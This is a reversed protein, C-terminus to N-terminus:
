ESMIKSRLKDWYSLRKSIEREFGRENPYYLRVRQMEDPFCNQGSFADASDHDYSYNKGYSLEKMLSTPANLLSKPPSLSGTIKATDMAKKWAIYVSNSKPSTALFIVLEAIHLEGEPNGIREYSQWASIAIGVAQPDSLGIDEAAFRVLRRLLYHPDEGALLMRALWYLSADCDSARLSKHLASILNFHHDGQKDYQLSRKSLFEAVKDCTWNQETKHAVLLQTMNLLYRADGDSLEVLLAQTAEDLHIPEELFVMARQYIAKLASADLARLVVVQTRSLLASNLAFSPNETTAGILRISGDEIAPLLADQQAKNFRHIEDIFVLISTDNQTVSQAREYIKRIESVGDLVASLKVFEQSSQTGLIRAITTKGSGPPGWFIFSGSELQSLPLLTLQPQGIVDGLSVPRMKEALPIKDNSNANMIKTYRALGTQLVFFLRM